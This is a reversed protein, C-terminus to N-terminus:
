VVCMAVMLAFTKTYVYLAQIFHRSIAPTKSCIILVSCGANSASAKLLEQCIGPLLATTLPALAQNDASHLPSCLPPHGVEAQVGQRSAAPAAAQRLEALQKCLKWPEWSVAQSCSVWILLHALLCGHM